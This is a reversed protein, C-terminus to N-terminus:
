KKAALKKVWRRLTPDRDSGEQTIQHNMQQVLYKVKGPNSGVLEAHLERLMRAEDPTLDDDGQALLSRVRTRFLGMDIGHPDIKRTPDTEKHGKVQSVDFDLHRCLAACGKVWADVQADPWPEGTGNNFAEIGISDNGWLGFGNHACRGDAIVWFTGSRDLGLQALPGKLDARGDRLVRAIVEDASNPGTATHHCVIGKLGNLERGRGEWKPLTRVNLGGARLVDPLWPLRVLVQM